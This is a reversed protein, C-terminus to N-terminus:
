GNRLRKLFAIKKGSKKPLRYCRYRRRVGKALVALIPCSYRASSLYSIQPELSFYVILVQFTRGADSTFRFFYRNFKYMSLIKFNPLCLRCGALIGTPPTTCAKVTYSSRIPNWNCRIKGTLSQRSTYFLEIQLFPFLFKKIEKGHVWM